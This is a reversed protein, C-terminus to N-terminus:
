SQGKYLANINLIPWPRFQCEGAFSVFLCCVTESQDMKGGESFELKPLFNEEHRKIRDKLKSQEGKGRM